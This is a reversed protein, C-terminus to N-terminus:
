IVSLSKHLRHYTTAEVVKSVRMLLSVPRYNAMGFNDAKKYVANAITYKHYEPFNSISILKNCIYSLAKNIQAGYLKLITCSREYYGSSCKSRSSNIISRNGKNM